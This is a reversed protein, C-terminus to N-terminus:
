KLTSVYAAIASIQAATLNHSTPGMIASLDKVAGQGRERDWVSLAKVTYWYLQGALRPIAGQGKGAPGHCASCAPVNSEPLGTDFISRGLALAERPAGGYPAPNMSKFRAALSSVMGPPIGHTVNIMIPNLRRRETFAKLQNEIYEPQQGALRPMPFAGRFGQGSEGHCTLCYELKAQLGGEGAQAAAGGALVALALLVPRLAARPDILNM